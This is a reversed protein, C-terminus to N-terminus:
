RPNPGRCRGSVDHTNANGHYGTLSGAVKQCAVQDTGQAVTHWARSKEADTPRAHFRDAELGVPGALPKGDVAIDIGQLPVSFKGPNTALQLPIEQPIRGIGENADVCRVEIKPEFPTQLGGPNWRDM